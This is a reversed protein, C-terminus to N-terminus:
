KEDENVNNRCKECQSYLIRIREDEQHEIIENCSKCVITLM